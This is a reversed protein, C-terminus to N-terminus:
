LRSHEEKVFGRQKGHPGFRLPTDAAKWGPARAIIANLRKADQYTMREPPKGLAETWVEAACVRDREFKRIKAYTDPVTQASHWFQRREKLSYWAWREPVPRAIFELVTEELTPAPPEPKDEATAGGRELLHLRQAEELTPLEYPTVKTYPGQAASTDVFGWGIVKALREATAQRCRGQAKLNFIHSPSVGLRKALEMDTLIGQKLKLADLRDVSIQVMKM